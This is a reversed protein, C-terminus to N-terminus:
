LVMKVESHASLERYYNDLSTQNEAYVIVTLSLYKKNKSKNQSMKAEKFDPFHKLTIKKIDSLFLASNIGIIKIPFECPFEIIEKNVTM